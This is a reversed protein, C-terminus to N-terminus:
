EDFDTWPSLSIRPTPCTSGAISGEYGFVSECTSRGGITYCTSAASPPRQLRFRPRPDPTPLDQHHDPIEDDDESSLEEPVQPLPLEPERKRKEREREAVFYEHRERELREHEQWYIAARRYWRTREQEEEAKARGQKGDDERVSQAGPWGNVSNPPAEADDASITREVLIPELLGQKARQREGELWMVMRKQTLLEKELADKEQLVQNLRDEMERREQLHKQREVEFELILRARDYQGDEKDMDPVLPIAEVEMAEPNNDSPNAVTRRSRRAKPRQVLHEPVMSISATGTDNVQVTSSFRVKKKPKQMPAQQQHGGTTSM